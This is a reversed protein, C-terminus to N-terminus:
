HLPLRRIETRTGSHVELFCWGLGVDPLETPGEVDASWVSRGLADLLICTVPQHPVVIHADQRHDLDVLGSVANWDALGTTQPEAIRMVGVETDGGADTDNFLVYGGEILCGYETATNVGGQCFVASQLIEGEHDVKLAWGNWVDSSEYPAIQESYGSEDGTGGFLYV